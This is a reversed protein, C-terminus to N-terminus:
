KLATLKIHLCLILINQRNLTLYPPKMADSLDIQTEVKMGGILNM